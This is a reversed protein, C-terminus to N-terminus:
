LGLEARLDEFLLDSPASGAGDAEGPHDRPDPDDNVSGMRGGRTFRRHIGRSLKGFNRHERRAWLAGRVPPDM